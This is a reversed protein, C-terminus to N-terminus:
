IQKSPCKHTGYTCFVCCDNEDPTLVTGCEKCDYKIQCVDTPLEEMAQHGCEPCTIESTNSSKNKGEPTCCEEKESHDTIADSEYACQSFVSVYLLLFLIHSLPTKINKM